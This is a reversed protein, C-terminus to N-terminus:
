KKVDVATHVHHSHTTLVMSGGLARTTKTLKNPAMNQRQAKKREDEHHERGCTAQYTTTAVVDVGAKPLPIGKNHVAAAKNWDFDSNHKKSYQLRQTTGCTNPVERLPFSM